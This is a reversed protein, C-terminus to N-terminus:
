GSYQNLEKHICLISEALKVQTLVVDFVLSNLDKRRVEAM